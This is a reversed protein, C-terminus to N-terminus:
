KSVHDTGTYCKLNNILAFARSLETISHIRDAIYGVVLIVKQARKSVSMPDDSNLSNGFCRNVSAPWGQSALM